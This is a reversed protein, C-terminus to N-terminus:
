NKFILKKKELINDIIIMKILILIRKDIDIDINKLYKKVSEKRNQNM